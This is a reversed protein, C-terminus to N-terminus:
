LASDAGPEGGFLPTGRARYWEAIHNFAEEATEVFEFLDLDERDIVGEEALFEFDVARRWYTRGVLVVPLPEVKRTQLLVLTEFLEDFTGFGGPFAVLARARELFHHKRMSFYHFRFCLGETLFPNPRQERPLTINLGVSLGGGEWAGRNAAEMLGPGGGTVLAIREGHRGNAREAVLRGFARAVEYYHSKAAIRSATEHARARSPDDPALDRAQRSADLAQQAVPPAPIRTGGFVVITHGIGQAALGLETKLFDLQLRPGRVADAALFDPDAEAIRYSASQMTAHVRAEAAANEAAVNRPLDPQSPDKM